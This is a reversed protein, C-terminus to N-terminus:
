AAADGSDPPPAPIPPAVQLAKWRAIEQPSAGWREWLVENPVGLTAMKLLADVLEGETRAEPDRWITESNAVAARSEDGAVQFSLRLVEEWSEGFHVQCRRSKKVLGTETSRLADGSPLNSGPGLLYHPPTRTIAAIHQIDAEVAAIYGALNTEAFDGFKANPNETMWLRDVAVRFPEVPEGTDPDVPIEMGTVWRQRFAGFESAMLRDFLTTNIRDQIPIVAALESCGVAGLEPRNRFPVVPVVGLPNALPWQEGPVDRPEWRTQRGYVGSYGEFVVDGMARKARFKYIADPLYLTALDEEAVDDTWVKLAASRQRVSGPVHEVVVQSPHEPTILASEPRAPDAWVSVYAEGSVLAETHVMEADADLNNEQWLRWAEADGRQDEGLRFGDVTLRETTADVVLAMWNSTAQELLRLFAEKAKEPASPLPHDGRYYDHYRKVDKRRRVLRAELRSLWWDPSGSMIEAM